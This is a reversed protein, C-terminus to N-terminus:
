TRKLKNKSIQTNRKKETERLYNLLLWSKFLDTCSVTPWLIKWELGIELKKDTNQTCAQNQKYKRKIYKHKNDTIDIPFILTSHRKGHWYVNQFNKFTFIWKKSMKSRFVIIIGRSSAFNDLNESHINSQVYNTM